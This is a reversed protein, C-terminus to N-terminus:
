FSPPPIPSRRPVSASAAASAGVGNMLGSVIPNASGGLMPMVMPLIKSAMNMIGGLGGGGFLGGLNLGPAQQPQQQQQEPIQSTGDATAAIPQAFRGYNGLMPSPKNGSVLNAFVTAGLSLGLMQLLQMKANPTGRKFHERYIEEFASIYRPNELENNVTVVWGDLKDTFFRSIFYIVIVMLRIWTKITEIRETSQIILTMREWEYQIRILSDDLTFTQVDFGARKYKELDLLYERKEYYVREENRTSPRAPSVEEVVRRSVSRVSRAPSPAEVAAPTPPRYFDDDSTEKRPSPKPSNQQRNNLLNKFFSPANRGIMEPKTPSSTQKPEKYYSDTETKTPADEQITGMKPKFDEYGNVTQQAVSQNDDDEKRPLQPYFQAISAPIKKTSLDPKEGTGILAKPNSIKSFIAVSDVSLRADFLGSKDRLNVVDTDAM